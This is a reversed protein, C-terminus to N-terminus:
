HQLLDYILDSILNFAWDPATVDIKNESLFSMFVMEVPDIKKFEAVAVRCDEFQPENIYNLFVNEDMQWYKEYAFTGHELDVASFIQFIKVFEYFKNYFTVLNERGKETPKFENDELKVLGKSCMTILLPKLTEVDNKGVVPFLRHNNIMENLIIIGRYIDSKEKTIKYKTM